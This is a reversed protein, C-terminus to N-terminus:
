FTPAYIQVINESESIVAMNNIFGNLSIDPNEKLFNYAREWDVKICVDVPLSYKTTGEIREM